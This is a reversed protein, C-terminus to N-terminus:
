IIFILYKEEHTFPDKRYLPTVPTYFLRLALDSIIFILYKEEHTLADKRYLPTVPTYFM